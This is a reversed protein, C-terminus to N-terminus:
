HADITGHGANQPIVGRGEYVLNVEWSTTWSGGLQKHAPRCDIVRVISSIVKKSEDHKPATFVFDYRTHGGEPEETKSIQARTPM